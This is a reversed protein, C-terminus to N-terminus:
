LPNASAFTRAVVPPGPNGASKLLALYDRQETSLCPLPDSGLSDEVAEEIEEPSNHHWHLRPRHRSGKRIPLSGDFGLLDLDIMEPLSLLRKPNSIGLRRPLVATSEFNAAYSLGGVNTWLTKTRFLPAITQPGSSTAVFLRPNSLLYLDVAAPRSSVRSLDLLGPMRPLPTMGPVGLRVVQGGRRLILRIAPIFSSLPSNRGYLNGDNATERIHFTVFWSHCDLGHTNLFQVAEDRHEISLRLTPEPLEQAMETLQSIREHITTAGDHGRSTLVNARYSWDFESGVRSTDDGPNRLFYEDFYQVLVKNAAAGLGLTRFVPAAPLLQLQHMRRVSGLFMGTHGISGLIEPGLIQVFTEAREAQARDQENAALKVSRRFNEVKGYHQSLVAAQLFIEWRRVGSRPLPVTSRGRRALMM